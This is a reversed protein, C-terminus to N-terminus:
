DEIVRFPTEWDVSLTRLEGESSQNLWRGPPPAATGGPSLLQDALPNALWRASPSDMLSLPLAPTDRQAWWLLESNLLLSLREPDLQTLDDGLSYAPGSLAASLAGVRAEDLSYPARAQVQDGDPWVLPFLYARAATSRAASAIFAPYLQGFTTDSGIRLSDIYGLSAHVPAGCGNIVAASGLAARIKSLGLRLSEVGSSLEARRGPIAAAYLFDLKFYSFGIQSLASLQELAHRMAEPHTSDIVYFTHRNGIINHRLPEQAALAEGSPKLLGAEDTPPEDPLPYVFWERPYNLREAVEVDVLFPAMWIGLELGQEGAEALLGLFGQPFRENPRWDGWGRQWGDDIEVLRMGLPALREGAIAIHESIYPEDIDEFRENWSYWGGPPRLANLRAEGWSRESMQLAELSRKLEAQYARLALWVSPATILVLEQTSLGEARGLEGRTNLQAKLPLDGFGLRATLLVQEDDLREAAFASLTYSPDLHGLLWVGSQEGSGLQGAILGYSVAQEGHLPDGTRAEKALLHGEEDREAEPSPAIAGSFSWSQHGLQFVRDAKLGRVSLEIASSGRPPAITLPTLTVREEGNLLARRPGQEAELEVTWGEFLLPVELEEAAGWELLAQDDAHNLWARGMSRSSLSLELCSPASLSGECDVPDPGSPGQDPAREGGQDPEQNLGSDPSEAGGREPDLRSGGDGDCALCGLLALSM